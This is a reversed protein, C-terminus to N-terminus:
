ATLKKKFHYYRLHLWEPLLLSLRNRYGNKTVLRIWHLLRQVFPMMTLHSQVLYDFDVKAGYITPLFVDPEGVFMQDCLALNENNRPAQSARIYLDELSHQWNNGWHTQAIKTKTAEGLSLRFVEDEVLNSLVKTYEEIDQTRILNGALGPMDAGLINCANSFPYRTVLPVGYSGAELLSTISVFPFSDVYIDAAQYFVATDETEGLVIIRGQTQKIAASWDERNGPGIVVLMAQPHQKLLPLHADAFSIGDITKYKAARAISLLLISNEAIGLQRKAEAQSLLRKAPELITPLLMNHEPKIGRRKQSLQLGSSRLNAVIDTVSAGLWFWHDGHNVYVIPPLQEKNAFAITPIVDYEWTQLVIIDATAAIERLRKAREIISAIGNNLIHIKGSSNFIADRLNAPVELPAQQTLVISHSRETDQQIWRRILRPIGSFTSINTSVHLVNKIKGSLLTTKHSYLNTKITNNGITQLVQELEPSTFFGCHKCHAHFAAMRAYVAATEYNGRQVYDRAQTVLRRFEGFNQPILRSGEERWVNLMENAIKEM